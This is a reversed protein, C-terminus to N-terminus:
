RALRAGSQARGGPAAHCCPAPTNCMSRGLADVPPAGVHRAASADLGFLASSAGLGLRGLLRALESFNQLVTRRREHNDVFVPAEEEVVAGQALQEAILRCFEIQDIGPDEPVVEVLARVNELLKVLATALQQVLLHEVPSLV